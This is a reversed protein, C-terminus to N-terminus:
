KFSMKFKNKMAQFQETLNQYKQKLTALESKEEFNKTCNKPQIM